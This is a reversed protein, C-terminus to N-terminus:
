FTCIFSDAYVFSVREPTTLKSPTIICRYMCGRVLDRLQNRQVPDACPHYLMVVGGHQRWFSLFYELLILWVDGIGKVISVNDVKQHEIRDWVNCQEVLFFYIQREGDTKKNQPHWITPFDVEWARTIPFRCPLDFITKTLNKALFAYIISECDNASCSFNNLPCWWYRWPEGVACPTLWLWNEPWFRMKERM